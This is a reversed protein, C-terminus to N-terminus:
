FHSDMISESRLSTLFESMRVKDKQSLKPKNEIKLISELYKEETEVLKDVGLELLYVNSRQYDNLENFFKFAFTRKTLKNM